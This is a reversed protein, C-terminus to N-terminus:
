LMRFINKHIWLYIPIQIIKFISASLIWRDIRLILLILYLLIFYVFKNFYNIIQTSLPLYDFSLVFRMCHHPEYLWSHVFWYFIFRRDMLFYFTFIILWYVFFKLIIVVDYLSVHFYINLLWNLRIVFCSHQWWEYVTPINWVLFLNLWAFFFDWSWLGLFTLVVVRIFIGLIHVILNKFTRNKCVTCGECGKILFSSHCGTSVM